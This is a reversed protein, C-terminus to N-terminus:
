KAAPELGIEKEPQASDRKKINVTPLPAFTATKSAMAHLIEDTVDVTKDADLLNQRAIVCSAKHTLRWGRIEELMIDAVVKRAAQEEVAMQRNLASLGEPLVRRKEEDSADKWEEELDKLGKQLVAKAQELHAIAAKGPVSETLVREVDVVGIVQAPENQCAPLALFSFFLFVFFFSRIGNTM